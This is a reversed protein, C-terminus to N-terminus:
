ISAALRAVILVFVPETLGWFITLPLLLVVDPEITFRLVAIVQNDTGCRCPTVFLGHSGKALPTRISVVNVVDNGQVAGVHTTKM